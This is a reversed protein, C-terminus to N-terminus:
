GPIGCGSRPETESRWAKRALSMCYRIALSGMGRHDKKKPRMIAEAISIRLSISKVLIFFMMARSSPIAAPAAIHRTDGVSVGFWRHNMKRHPAMAIQAMIKGPIEPLKM